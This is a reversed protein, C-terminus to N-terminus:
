TILSMLGPTSLNFRYLLLVGFLALLDATEILAGYIDGTLGGLQKSIRAAGALVLLTVGATLVIGAIGYFFVAIFLVSVLATIVVAPSASSRIRDGMGGPRASPFVKMMLPIIGRSLAPAFILPFLSQLPKLSESIMLLEAIVTIQLVTMMLLALAGFSGLRSDSMIALRKERNRGGGMGDALDALGDMHLGGSIAIRVAVAVVAVGAPSFIWGFAWAAVAAIIGLIAGAWPYVALVISTKKPPRGPVPIISLFRLAEALARM